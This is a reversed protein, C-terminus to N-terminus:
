RAFLGRYYEFTWGVLAIVAVCTGIISIWFGAALGLFVLGISAALVIPWWSFPSFFGLEPDDDDINASATDAPLEGGQARHVRSLYFAIFATLIACLTLAVTGVWEIPTGPGAISQTALEQANFILSWVTYGIAAILFFGTLIWFLNVNARM